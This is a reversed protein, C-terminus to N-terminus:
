DAKNRPAFAGLSRIVGALAEAHEPSGDWVSDLLDHLSQADEVHTSSANRPLDSFVYKCAAEFLKSRRKSAGSFIRSIQSQSARLHDAIASQTLGRAKAHQALRLAEAQLSTKLNM